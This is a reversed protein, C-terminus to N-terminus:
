RLNQYWAARLLSRFGMELNGDLLLTENISSVLTEGILFHLLILYIYM